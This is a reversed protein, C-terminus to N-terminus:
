LTIKIPSGDITSTSDHKSFLFSNNEKIKRQRNKKISVRINFM